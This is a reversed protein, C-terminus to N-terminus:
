GKTKGYINRRKNNDRNQNSKLLIIKEGALISVKLWNEPPVFPCVYNKSYACWPNYAKNFDLIWKGEPTLDKGYEIDIYRGAGYTEKGSTTDRFPIFLREEGPDSKYAQLICKENNIKFRFEGWCIFNRINGGTDEIQVTKKNNHENLKLEFRYSPDPSYYSLGNFKSRDEQPIPSQWNEAFSRDKMKREIEISNEWESNKEMIEGGVLL